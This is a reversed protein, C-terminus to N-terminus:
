LAAASFTSCRMKRENLTQCSAEDFPITFGFAQQRFAKINVKLIAVHYSSRESQSDVDEQKAKNTLYDGAAPVYHSLHEQTHSMRLCIATVQRSPPYLTFVQLYPYEGAKAIGFTTPQSAFALDAPFGWADAAATGQLINTTLYNNKHRSEQNLRWLSLQAGVAIDKFSPESQSDKFFARNATIAGASRRAPCTRGCESNMSAFGSSARLYWAGITIGGSNKRIYAKTSGLSGYTPNRKDIRLLHSTIVSDPSSSRSDDPGAEDIIGRTLLTPWDTGPWSHSQM